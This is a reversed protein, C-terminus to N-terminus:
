SRRKRKKTVLGESPAPSLQEQLAQGPRTAVAQLGPELELEQEELVERGDACGGAQRCPSSSRPQDRLVQLIPYSKRDAENPLQNKEKYFLSMISIHM